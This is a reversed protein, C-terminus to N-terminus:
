NSLFGIAHRDLNQYEVYPVPKSTAHDLYQYSGLDFWLGIKGEWDGNRHKDCLLITDYESLKKVQDPTLTKGQLKLQNAEEKKKNRWISFCNDALDTIAGTGKNDLKGPALSENESKRPHVILHVHCNHENKFDCLEEIFAKQAKYDDEAIDLKMFSDIVFMDVGYRQRAYRFVELLRKCKATGLLDFLWLSQGYWEHIARIYSETPNQLGAAQRTMRMLLRKPKLELSAICVRAGQQIAHLVVQGLVQSKGHGNIGTWVSLEETRFLIKGKAKEWPLSVGIESNSPPYFENIVQEVFTSARKLEEPDLTKANKIATNITEVSVKAKLCENADKYPLEVIRCRHRGLREVLEAATSHGTEDMDFCLYIEDYAALRDFEYELWTHKGGKGGGFPVSLAPIGYQYLSMADIEGECLTISRSNSPILHWGFLCPECNPEVRLQKKGQPRELSLYKILILEGNRWFPLAIENGQESIKFANITESNLKREKLLYNMVASTMPLGPLKKLSPKNFNSQKHAEFKPASIGLFVEAEKKAELLTKNRVKSWLDLLDGSNNDDAFDCWLGAKKGTLRLGLSRGPDGHINGTRWENGEKNGNPLLYRGVEEARQALLKAIESFNTKM